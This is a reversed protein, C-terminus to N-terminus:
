AARDFFYYQMVHKALAEALVVPVANGIQKAIQTYSGHFIFDDPFSQLRAGERLTIPRDAKPHLYRGKEPKIFETRITPAPRDYWMRGFVDTSGHKKKQWCPPLLKAPLDFRNGGPPVCSYRKLSLPTPNRGVHLNRNNPRLSLGRFAARVTVHKLDAPQPLSAISDRVGIVFARLRKQPVGFHQANLVGSAVDYGLKIARRRLKAYEGSRLLQPVNEILFVRPSIESLIRYYETWLSNRPDGQASARRNLSSFGQCPPGGVLVDVHPTRSELESVTWLLGASERRVRLNEIPANVVHTGLNRAYTECACKDNDIAFVSSFGANSFGLSLGGAGCFLDAVTPM